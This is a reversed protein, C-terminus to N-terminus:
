YNVGVHGAPLNLLAEATVFHLREADVVVLVTRRYLIFSTVEVVPVYNVMILVLQHLASADLEPNVRVTAVLGLHNGVGLHPLSQFARSVLREADHGEKVWSRPAPLPHLFHTVQRAFLLVVAPAEVAHGFLIAEIQFCFACEEFQRRLINHQSVSALQEPLLHPMAEALTEGDAEVEEVGHLAAVEAQLHVGSVLESLSLETQRVSLVLAVIQEICGVIGHDIKAQFFANVLHLHNLFQSCCLSALYQEICLLVDVLQRGLLVVVVKDWCAGNM